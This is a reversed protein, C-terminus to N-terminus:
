VRVDVSFLGPLEGIEQEGAFASLGDRLEALIAKALGKEDRLLRAFALLLVLHEILSRSDRILCGALRTSIPILQNPTRGREVREVGKSEGKCFLSDVGQLVQNPLGM